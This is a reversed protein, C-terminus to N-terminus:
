VLLLRLQFLRTAIRIALGILYVTVGAAFLLTGFAFLAAGLLILV